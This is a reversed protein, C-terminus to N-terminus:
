IDYIPSLGRIISSSTGGSGPMSALYMQRIQMSSSPLADANCLSKDLCGCLQEDMLVM